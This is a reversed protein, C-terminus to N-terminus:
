EGLKLTRLLDSALAYHEEFTDPPDHIDIMLNAGDVDVFIFLHKLAPDMGSDGGGLWTPDDKLWFLPHMEPTLVIMQSGTQGAITLVTPVGAVKAGPISSFYGYLDKPWAIYHSPDPTAAEPSVAYQPDIVMAGDIRAISTGKWESEPAPPQGAYVLEILNPQVQVQWEPGYTFSVPVSFQGDATSSFTQPEPTDTAVPAAAQGGGGGGCATLSLFISVFIVHVWTPSKM